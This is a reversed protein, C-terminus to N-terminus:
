GYIDGDGDNFWVENEYRTSIFADLDGDEDLDGLAVRRGETFNLQQVLTFNGLGDTTGFKIEKTQLM